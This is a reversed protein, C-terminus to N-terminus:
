RGVRPRDCRADGPEPRWACCTPVCRPLCWASPKAPAGHCRLFQAAGRCPPVAARGRRGGPAPLQAGRRGPWTRVAMSPRGLAVIAPRDAQGAAGPRRGRRPHRRGGPLGRGPLEGLERWPRPTAAPPMARRGDHGRRLPCRDQRAPLRQLAVSPSASGPRAPWSAWPCAWAVTGRHLDPAALRQPYHARRGPGPDPLRARDARRRGAGGPTRWLRSHVSHRRRPAIPADDFCPLDDHVLSACHLLEIAAAAADTLAPQTTAMPWRWRWACSRGSARAAPSCRTGCAGRGASAPLRASRGRTTLAANLAQAIRTMPIWPAEGPERRHPQAAAGIHEVALTMSSVVVVLHTM